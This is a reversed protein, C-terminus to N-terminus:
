SLRTLGLKDVCCTWSQRSCKTQTLSLVNSKLSVKISKGRTLYTMLMLWCFSALLPYAISYRTQNHRILRTRGSNSSATLLNYSAIWLPEWRTHSLLTQTKWIGIVTRSSQIKRARSSNQGTEWTSSTLTQMSFSRLWFSRKGLRRILARDSM